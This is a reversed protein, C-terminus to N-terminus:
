RLRGQISRYIETNTLVRTYEKRDHKYALESLHKLSDVSNFWPIPIEDVEFKKKMALKDIALKASEIEIGPLNLKDAISAVTLPVDSACCIVGDIRRIKANYNKVLDYTRLFDYTSAILIDDAYKFGPANPNGDSVVVHLGMESARKICPISEIGGSIILLTRKNM